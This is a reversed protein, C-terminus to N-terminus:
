RCPASQVDFLLLSRQSVQECYGGVEGEHPLQRGTWLPPGWSGPQYWTKVVEELMPTLVQGLRLRSHDSEESLSLPIWRQSHASNWRQSHSGLRWFQSFYIQPWRTKHHTTLAAQISWSVPCYCLVSTGSSILCAKLAQTQFQCVKVDAENQKGLLDLTSGLMLIYIFISQRKTSSYTM